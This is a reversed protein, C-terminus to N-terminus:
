SVSAANASALQWAVLGGSLSFVNSYGAALLLDVARASRVGSACHVVIFADTPVHDLETLRNPLDDLPMLVGKMNSEAYEDPRRVDIVLPREGRDMRDKLAQATIEPTASRAADRGDTECFTEHDVLHQVTPDTGCVPCEPNKSMELTRFQMALADILLLRGILPEGIGLILKLVETAQITGVMGPLVGLVGGEACSPVLHSPPPQEFLCRYCPGSLAAFVSVQGEFQSISGYVNPTGTMVCADNVLYRTAFNDSGDAVIDYAGILDRANTSTLRHPLVDLQVHPNLDRLRRAAADTKLTGVDGVGYLVQRQLNTEDVRDFDLIGLRGIGAAALYLAIPSGLGGMGVLLVSAKSLKEQGRVGVQPLRIHRDYRTLEDQSLQTSM